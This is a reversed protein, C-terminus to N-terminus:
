PEETGDPAEPDPAPDPSEPEDSVVKWEGSEWDWYWEDGEKGAIVFQCTAGDLEYNDTATAFSATASYSEGAETEAGSVSLKVKQGNVDVFWAEPAQAEGTYSLNANGWQVMVMRPKIVFRVTQSEETVTYNSNTAVVTVTYEGANIASCVVAGDANKVTYAFSVGDASALPQQAKGNFIFEYVGDTLTAGNETWVATIEKGVINFNQTDTYKEFDYNVFVDIATATHEGSNATAGSVPVTVLNGDVDEFKAVPAHLAGDYNWNFSTQEDGNEDLWKVIVTAPKITFEKSVEADDAFAFNEANAPKATATYTGANVATGTVPLEHKEGNEDVYYATPRHAAGNFTWVFTGDDNGEWEIDTLLLQKIEFKHTGANEGSAFKFTCNEPAIATATYEGADMRGGKVELVQEDGNWDIYSATPAFYNEGDYTYDGVNWVVTIAYPAIEFEHTANTFVYNKDDCVAVATYSGVASEGGIVTVTLGSANATPAHLKGDYEWVFTGNDNGLWNLTVKSPNITIECTPNNAAYNANLFFIESTYVGANKFGTVTYDVGEVLIVENGEADTFSVTPKQEKANPMYNFETNTWTLDLQAPNIVFTHKTSVAFDLDDTIYAVYTGAETREGIVNLYVPTDGDPGSLYYAQPLKPTGDYTFNLVQDTVSIVNGDGDVWYIRTIVNNVIDFRASSGAFTYNSNVADDNSLIAYAYHTGVSSAGGSVALTIEVQKNNIIAKLSAAPTHLEGDHTLVFYAYDRESAGELTWVVDTADLAFKAITFEQTEGGVINFNKSVVAKATHTGANVFGQVTVACPVGGTGGVTAVPAQATGNYTYVGVTWSITVDLPKITFMFESDEPAIELDGPLLYAYYTGVNTKAGGVKLFEYSSTDTPDAAFKEADLVVIAKPAQAAGNYIFEYGNADVLVGDVEVVWRVDATNEDATLDTVYFSLTTYKASTSMSCNAGVDTLRAEATYPTTLEKGTWWYGDHYVPYNVELPYLTTVKISEGAENVGDLSVVGYASLRPGDKGYVSIWTFSPTEDNEFPTDSGYAYWRVETILSAVIEVSATANSLTFNKNFDTDKLTATVTGRGLASRGDVDLELETEVGNLSFVAKAVPAHKKGDYSWEYTSGALVSNEDLSWDVSVSKVEIEFTLTAEEFNGSGEVIKAVYNGANVPLEESFDDSGAKAYTVTVELEEGNFEATIEPTKGEGTFTKDEYDSNVTMEAANVTFEFSTGGLAYNENDLTAKVVYKGINVPAGDLEVGNKYYTLTLQASLDEGLVGNLTFEPEKADGDYTLNASGWEMAVNVALIKYAHNTTVTKYNGYLNGTATVIYEGVDVSSDPATIDEAPIDVKNGDLDYYYATPVQEEGNYEFKDASWYIAVAKANVTFPASTDGVLRYNEADISAIATYEGTDVPSAAVGNKQYSISLAVNEGDLLGEIIAKVSKETGDYEVETDGWRVSLNRKEITFTGLATGYYNGSGSVTIKATGANVNDSYTVTYDEGEVLAAGYLFVTIDPTIEKGNYIYTGTYKIEANEISGPLIEFTFTPNSYNAADAATLYYKGVAFFTSTVNGYDDLAYKVNVGDPKVTYANGDFEVSYYASAGTNAMTGGVIGYQWNLHQKPAATGSQIVVEGSELAIAHNSDSFFFQAFSTASNGATTYGSTFVGTTSSLTVGVRTASKGYDRLKKTVNIITGNSLYVNNANGGVTNNAIIGGGLRFSASDTVYVGGGFSGATNEAITGGNMHFIGVGSTVFVGGGDSSTSNGIIEGGSMTFSGEIYVAGGRTDGQVQTVRNGSIKGDTMDFTSGVSLYVASGYSGTTNNSITGDTMTFSSGQIYVGGGWWSNNESITGGNMTFKADNTIYAGGGDIVASNGTIVGDTMTFSSNSYVAGGRESATNGTIVGGLMEFTGTAVYVGSGSTATNGSIEGDNMILTGSQLRIGGGDTANNGELTGKNITVVSDGIGLGGGLNATNNSIAGGNMEFTCNNLDLGGGYNTGNNDAIEGGNMILTCNDVYIAGGAHTTVNSNIFGDNLTVTSNLCYIGGGRNANNELIEGGNMTFTSGSVVHVGGGNSTATNGSIEGGNMTFESGNVFVGGGNHNTATNNSITGGTMTFTSNHVYVGGGGNNTSHNGSITGGNLTFTDNGNIYVGGGESTSTNGSIEGGNMTFESLGVWVNVGGGNTATNGTIEGGNMIFESQAANALIVGGGLNSGANNAIAGKNMVFKAGKVYVGGGHLTTNESITGGNMTFSSGVALFVGGADLTTNNGSISGSTLTLNGGDVSIGGGPGTSNGGTIKGIKSVGVSDVIELNGNVLIVGGDAVAEKGALNRDINSTYLDLLIDVGAPIHLRGNSFGTGTGFGAAGDAATLNHRLVINLRTETYALGTTIANKWESADGVQFCFDDAKGAPAKNGSVVGRSVPGVADGYFGGANVIATNGTIKGGSISWTDWGVVGGGYDATNESVAGGTMKFVGVYSNVGGGESATNGSIIGNNLTFTGYSSVGGGENSASNGSIEGGNMTFTGLNSYIYVGGGYGDSREGESVTNDKIKGANMTFVGDELYVGGGWGGINNSIEGGNMEFTGDNVWVGGGTLGENGSIAGGELILTGGEDVVIGGAHDAHNGGTIKGTTGVVELDGSSVYIASGAAIASTLNRNLTYTGLDLLIHAGAPVCLRGSDFGVGSGFSTTYTADSAAIWDETLTFTVQKGNGDISEQVASNWAAALETNSQASVSTDANATKPTAVIGAFAIAACSILTVLFAGIAAIKLKTKLPKFM